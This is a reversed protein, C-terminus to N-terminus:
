VAGALSQPEMEPIPLVGPQLRQQTCTPSLGSATQVSTKTRLMAVAQQLTDAQSALEEATTAMEESAGANQQIVQDLQQIARSVQDAGLEQERSATSIEQVLEATKQIAPVVSKLLNGAKEAVDISSASLTGIDRAALQSREALKRVEAAVVAFGQGYEGARAAEIAANLALLNTQRAIEEIIMIKGAIEKMATTTEAVAVGGEGANRSAQIALIETERAHEANQRINAAMQEISSSAEEAAAAQETAGSSLDSSSSSLVQSGRAVQEAVLRIEDVLDGLRANTLALPKRAVGRVAFTFDGKALCQFAAVIENKLNEAFGDVAEAMRGVEDRRSFGLRVDLNGHNLEGLMDIVQQLPSSISRAVLFVLVLVSLIVGATVACTIRFVQGLVAEVDDVYLGAGIIWGWEPLVKVYSFKPVPRGVGPKPWSYEVFGEGQRNAVEVMQVFLANGLPDCYGSLDTGDLEPRMPHMIMRPELDNIWFYNDGDFRAAKLSARVAQQAEAQSLNGAKAQNVFYEAGNWAAEVTHRIEEQKSHFLNDRLQTYVWGITLTFILIIAVSLLYIKHALKLDKM